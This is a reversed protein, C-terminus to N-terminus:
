LLKKVMGLMFGISGPWFLQLDVGRCWNIMRFLIKESFNNSQKHIEEKSLQVTISPISLRDLFHYIIPFHFQQNHSVNRSRSGGGCTNFRVRQPPFLTSELISNLEFLLLLFDPFRNRLAIYSIPFSCEYNMTTIMCSNEQSTFPKEKAGREERLRKRKKEERERENLKGDCNSWQEKEEGLLIQLLFSCQGFTMLIFKPFRNFRSFRFFTTWTM